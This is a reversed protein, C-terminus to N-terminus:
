NKGVLLSLTHTAGPALTTADDYANAQEICVFNLYAENPIDGINKVTDKWPNWIVTVKSGTKEVKIERSTGPDKLICAGEHTFYRRNEEKSISLVEEEQYLEQDKFAPDLYALKGLGLISANEVDSVSFYTHLSNTTTFSTRGTNHIKLSVRLQKGVTVELELRFAHPWVNLTAENDELTLVLKVENEITVATEKVEWMQLRAFGHVPLQTDSPHPGFWPFCVPIGGRIPKGVEFASQPSMWLLESEGRPVYSLVHAGYLSISASAYQNEVVAVPLGGKGEIFQIHNAIGFHPNLTTLTM